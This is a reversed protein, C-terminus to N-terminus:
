GYYAMLRHTINISMSIHNIICCIYCLSLRYYLPTPTHTSDVSLGGFLTHNHEEISNKIIEELTVAVSSFEDQMADEGYGTWGGFGLGKSEFSKICEVADAWGDEDSVAYTMTCDLTDKLADGLLIVAKINPTEQTTATFMPADAIAYVAGYRGFSAATLYYQTGEETTHVVVSKIGHGGAAYTAFISDSGRYLEQLGHVIDLKLMDASNEARAEKAELEISTMITDVVSTGGIMSDECDCMFGFKSLHKRVAAIAATGEDTDVSFFSGDIEDTGSGVSVCRCVSYQGASVQLSMRRSEAGVVVKCSCGGARYVFTDGKYVKGGGLRDRVRYILQVVYNAM